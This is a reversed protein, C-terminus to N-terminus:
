GRATNELDEYLRERRSAPLVRSRRRTGQPRTSQRSAADCAWAEALAAANPHAFLDIVPFRVGLASQLAAHARVLHLSTLGGDFFNRDPALVLGTQRHIVDLVTREVVGASRAASQEAVGALPTDPGEVKHHANMRFGEVLMIRAPVAYSPLRTRLWTRLDDVLTDLMGVADAGPQVALTLAPLEDESSWPGAWVARVAPHGLAAHEIEEPAIRHGDVSIQRDARGVLLILGEGDRRGRDGTRLTGDGDIDQGLASHPGVIVVDGEAGPPASRGDTTLVDVRTRGFRDGIPLPVGDDLGDLQAEGVPRASAIQAYETCGYANHVAADTVARLARVTGARLADGGSVVLGLAPLREGASGAVVLELLGPTAHLVTIRAERLFQFLARPGALVTAPPVAVAAGCVVPVLVDRLVPDHGIGGLLAFRDDASPRYVDLYDELAGLLAGGPVAVAKPTGTSGSTFLVHHAGEPVVSSRLRTGEPRVSTITSHADTVDIRAAVGLLAAREGRVLDPLARDVLGPVVGREWCALLVPVLDACREAEVLVSSGPRVGQEDLRDALEAIRAALDSRSLVGSPSIVAPAQPAAALFRRGSFWSVHAMSGVVATPTVDSNTSEDVFKSM